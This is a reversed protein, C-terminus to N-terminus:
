SKGHSRPWPTSHNNPCTSTSELVTGPDQVPSEPQRMARHQRHSVSSQTALAGIAVILAHWGKRVRPRGSALSLGLLLTVSTSPHPPPLTPLARHDQQIPLGPSPELSCMSQLRALM